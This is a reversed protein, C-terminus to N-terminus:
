ICNAHPTSYGRYKSFPCSHIEKISPYKPSKFLPLWYANITWAPLAYSLHLMPEGYKIPQKIDSDFYRSNIVDVPHFAEMAAWNIKKLGASLTLNDKMYTMFAEEVLLDSRSDDLSDVQSYVTLIASIDQNDYMVKLRSLSYLNSQNVASLNQNDFLRQQFGVYGQYSISACISLSFCLFYCLFFRKLM